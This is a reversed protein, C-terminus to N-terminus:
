DQETQCQRGSCSIHFEYEAKDGFYGIMSTPNISPLWLQRKGDPLLHLTVIDAFFFTGQPIDRLNYKARERHAWGLDIVEVPPPPCKGQANRKGIKTVFACCNKISSLGTNEIPSTSVM